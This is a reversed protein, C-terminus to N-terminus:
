LVIGAGRYLEPSDLSFIGDANVLRRSASVRTQSKHARRAKLHGSVPIGTVDSVGRALEATQNYGRRMLKTWHLPVPMLHNMGDFFGAPLLEEAMLRGLERAIGPAGRYKFDQILHSIAADPAYYFHGTATVFPFRGAFRMVMPNQPNAHYRTRPLGAACLQCLSDRGESLPSGCLRCEPPVLFDLLM